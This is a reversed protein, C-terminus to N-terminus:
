TAKKDRLKMLLPLGVILYAIANIYFSGVPGVGDWLLGNLFPSGQTAINGIAFSSLMATGKEDAAVISSIYAQRATAEINNELVTYISQLITFQLFSTSIVILPLLAPRFAASALVLSRNGVHDVIFGQPLWMLLGVIRAISNMLGYETNSLGVIKVMYIPAFTSMFSACVFHALSEVTLLQLRSDNRLPGLIASLSLSTKQKSVGRVTSEKLLLINMTAAAFSLISALVLGTKVGQIIGVDDVYAGIIAPMFLGPLSMSFLRTSLVMGLKRHPIGDTVAVITISQLISGVGVLVNGPITWYWVNAFSNALMGVAEFYGLVIILKRRGHTDVLHGIPLQLFVVICGSILSLLGIESVSAGLQLLYLSWFTSYCLSAITRLFQTIFIAIVNRYLRLVKPQEAEM